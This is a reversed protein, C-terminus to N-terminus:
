IRAEIAASAVSGCLGTSSASYLASTTMRTSLMRQRAPQRTWNSTSFLDTIASIIEFSDRDQTLWHQRTRM